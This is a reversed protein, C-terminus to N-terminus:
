WAWTFFRTYKLDIDLPEGSWRFVLPRMTGVVDSITKVRRYQKLYYDKALDSEHEPHIHGKNIDAFIALSQPSFVSAVFPIALINSAFDIADNVSMSLWNLIAQKPLDIKTFRRIENGLSFLMSSRLSLLSTDLLTIGKRKAYPLVVAQINEDSWHTFYPDLRSVFWETIQGADWIQYLWLNSTDSDEEEIAQLFIGSFRSQKMLHYMCPETLGWCAVYDQERPSVYFLQNGLASPYLPAQSDAALPVLNGETLANVAQYVAAIVSEQTAGSIYVGLWNM